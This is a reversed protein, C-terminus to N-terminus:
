LAQLYLVRVMILFKQRLTNKKLYNIEGIDEIINNNIVVGGEDILHYSDNLLNYFPNKKFSLVRGAIIKM